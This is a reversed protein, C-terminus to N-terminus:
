GGEEACFVGASELTGGLERRLPPTRKGQRVGPGAAAAAAPEM